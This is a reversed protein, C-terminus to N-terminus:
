VAHKSLIVKGAQELVYGPSYRTLCRNDHFRCVPLMCPGCELDGSDLCLSRPGTPGAWDKRSSSFLAVVPINQTWSMHMLGSDETLMFSARSIVDFAELQNAKGTLDICAEGLQEKVYRAKLAHAPLLLLVFQTSENVHQMWLRAFHVYRDLPWNRSPCYGAPNLVVLDHSPKLGNRRLLQLTSDDAHRRVPGPAVKWHWLAEITRRTREGASTPSYLDFASWSAPRLLKRVIRTIRNNQLDIVADYRRSRLSITQLLAFLFQLRASRGGRVIFVNDFLALNRPIQSVEKRTLLDMRISPFQDRLSQLFPLTIILDGLAQFRM